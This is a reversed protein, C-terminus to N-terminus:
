NRFFWRVGFLARGGPLLTGPVDFTTRRNLLNDFRYFIRIDLIRIQLFANVLVYRPTVVDTITAGTLDPALTEDRGVLELRLTPELNGGRYSDNFTFGLRGMQVPLYPIEPEGFFRTYWGDLRLESWLVPLSAYAEVGTLAEGARPTLGRDFVFGYPAVDDADLAFWTAGLELNGRRVEAGARFAALSTDLVRQATVTDPVETPEGEGGIGTVAKVMVITDRVWPIARGGAALGGFLTVGRFPGARLVAETEVGSVGGFTRLRADGRALLWPAPRAEIRGSLETAENAHGGEDALHFRAAGSLSGFRTPIVARLAAQTSEVHATVTDAGKPEETSRGVMADLWLAGFLRGRGRLIM